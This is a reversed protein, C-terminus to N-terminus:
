YMSQPYMNSGGRQPLQLSYGCDINQLLLSFFLYVESYGLKAIYFHTIVPYVNGCPTEKTVIYFPKTPSKPVLNKEVINVTYIDM